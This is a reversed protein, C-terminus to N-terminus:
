LQEPFNQDLDVQLFGSLKHTHTHKKKKQKKPKQSTKPFNRPPKQSQKLLKKANIQINSINEPFNEPSQQFSFSAFVHCFCKASVLSIFVYIKIQQKKKINRKSKDKETPPLDSVRHIMLPNIVVKQVRITGPNTKLVFFRSKNKVFFCGKPVEKSVTQYMKPVKQKEKGSKPVKKRPNTEPFNGPNTKSM